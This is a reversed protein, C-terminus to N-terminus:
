PVAFFLGATLAVSKNNGNGLAVGYSPELFWGFRKSPWVFLDFAADICLLGGALASPLLPASLMGGVTPAAIRSM